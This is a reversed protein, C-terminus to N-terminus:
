EQLFRGFIRLRRGSWNWGTAAAMAFMLWAAPEPV